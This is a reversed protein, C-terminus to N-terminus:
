NNRTSRPCEHHYKLLELLIKKDIEEQVEKVMRKINKVGNKTLSWDNAFSFELQEQIKM